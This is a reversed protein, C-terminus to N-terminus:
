GTISVRTSSLQFGLLVRTSGLRSNLCFWTLVLYFWSSGLLVRTSGPLVWTLGLYFGPLLGPLVCTSGLPIWAWMWTRWLAYQQSIHSRVDLLRPGHPDVIAVFPKPIYKM